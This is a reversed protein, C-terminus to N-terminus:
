PALANRIKDDAVVQLAEAQIKRAWKEDGTNKLILILRVVDDTFINRYADESARKKTSRKAWAMGQEYNTKARNFISGPDGMHQRALEFERKQVLAEEAIDHIDRAFTPSTAAIKRFLAVTEDQESLHDNISEVDHFLDRNAEGGALRATKKDRIDKLATLAKPYKQGLDVWESLAFSLRVGYM